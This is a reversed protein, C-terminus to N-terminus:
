VKALALRDGFRARLADGLRRGEPTALDGDRAVLDFAARRARDLLAGDTLADPM